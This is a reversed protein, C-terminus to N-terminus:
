VALRERWLVALGERYLREAAQLHGEVRQQWALCVKAHARVIPDCSEHALRAVFSENSPERAEADELFALLVPQAEPSAPDLKAVSPSM